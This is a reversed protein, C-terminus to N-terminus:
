QGVGGLAGLVLAIIAVVTVGVALVVPLSSHPLPRSEDMAEENGTWQRFSAVALVVGLAILPLGVIRRGGAVRFAPLLQTIVLGATILALATRIWALFTRENAYHLRPDIPDPRGATGAPAPDDSGADAGVDDSM